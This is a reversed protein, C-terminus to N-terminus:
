SDQQVLYNCINLEEKFSRGMQAADSNEPNKRFLQAAAKATATSWYDFIETQLEIFQAEPLELIGWARELFQVSNESYTEIIKSVQARTAEDADTPITIRLTEAM